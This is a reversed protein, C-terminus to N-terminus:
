WVKNLAGELIQSVDKALSNLKENNMIRMPAGPDLVLVEVKNGSKEMLVVKCPLFIGINEEQQVAEYAFKPNCIGLIVYPPFDVNLKEKFKEHMKIETLVGFGVEKFSAEVRERIEELGGDLTRNFYLGEKEM